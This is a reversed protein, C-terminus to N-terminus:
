LYIAYGKEAQIRKGASLGKSLMALEESVQESGDPHPYEDFLRKESIRFASAIARVESSTVQTRSYDEIGSIVEFTLGSAEALDSISLGQIKRHFSCNTGIRNGKNDYSLSM